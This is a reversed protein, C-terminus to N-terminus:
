KIIEKAQIVPSASDEVNHYIGKVIIEEEKKVEEGTTEIENYLNIGKSNEDVLKIIQTPGKLSINIDEKNAESLFAAKGIVKVEAGDEIKGDLLDDVIVTDVKDNCAVLLIMFVFLIGLFGKRM